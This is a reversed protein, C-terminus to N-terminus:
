CWPWCAPGWAPPPRGCDRQVGSEGAARLRLHRRRGPLLHPDRQRGLHRHGPHLAGPVGPRVGGAPDSVPPLLPHAQVGRGRLLRLHPLCAAGRVPAPSGPRRSPGARLLAPPVGGGHSGAAHVPRGPIESRGRFPFPSTEYPFREVSGRRLGSPTDRRLRTYLAQKFIDVYGIPPGKAGQVACNKRSIRWSKQPFIAQWRGLNRAALCM